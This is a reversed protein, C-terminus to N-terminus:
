ARHNESIILPLIKSKKARKITVKGRKGWIKKMEAREFNSLRWLHEYTTLNLTKHKEEFHIKMFYKWIAPDTKPCIPCYIPVNSCPSSATSEAAIGYSYTMKILCGKSQKQNIRPNGNAGKGKALYFQCLQTPRLCLSCLPEISQIVAPNYLIHSGIHELVCQGQSLDLTVTPSCRLCDSTTLSGIEGLDQDSECVFCTDGTASTVTLEISNKTLQHSM